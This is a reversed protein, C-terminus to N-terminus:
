SCSSNVTARRFRAGAGLARDADFVTRYQPLDISKSFNASLEGAHPQQRFKDKTLTHLRGSSDDLAM